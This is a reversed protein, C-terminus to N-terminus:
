ESLLEPMPIRAKRTNVDFSCGKTLVHIRINSVAVPGRKEVEAVDSAEM